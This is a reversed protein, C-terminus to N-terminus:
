VHRRRQSPNLGYGYLKNQANRLALCRLGLAAGVDLQYHPPAVLHVTGIFGALEQFPQAFTLYNVRALHRVLELGAITLGLHGSPENLYDAMNVVDDGRLLLVPSPSVDHTDHGVLADNETDCVVFEVADDTRHYGALAEVGDALMAVVVEDHSLLLRPREPWVLGVDIGLESGGAGDAVLYGELECGDEVAFDEDLESAM